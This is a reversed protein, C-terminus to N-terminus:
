PLPQEVINAVYPGGGGPADALTIIYYNGASFTQVVPGTEVTSSGNDTVSLEYDGVPVLNTNYGGTALSFTATNDSVTEGASLLYVDSAGAAVSGNFVQVLVGTSIPRLDAATVVGSTNRAEAQDADTQLGGVFLFNYTGPEIGVTVNLTEDTDVGDATVVLNVESGTSLGDTQATAGFAVGAVLPNGAPEGVHVDVSSVDAVLNTTLLETSTDIQNSLAVQTRNIVTRVTIEANGPGFYDSVILQMRTNDAVTFAGSDFLLTAADGAPTVVVRASESSSTQLVTSFEGHALTATPATAALDASTETLYIDLDGQSLAGHFVQVEPQAVADEELGYGYEQNEIVTIVPNALNGSFWVITEDDRFLKINNDDLREFITVTEGDTGTYGARVDFGAVTRAQLVAQGFLVSASSGGSSTSILGVGIAPSDSITNIFGLIGQDFTPDPPDVQGGGSSGGGCAALLVCSLAVLTQSLKM